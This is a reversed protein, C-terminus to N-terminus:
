LETPNGGGLQHHSQWGLQRPTGDPKTHDFTFAGDFGLVCSITEALEGITVDEGTGINILPATETFLTPPTTSTSSSSAPTM